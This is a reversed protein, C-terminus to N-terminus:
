GFLLRTHSFLKRATNDSIGADCLMAEVQVEDMQKELGDSVSLLTDLYMKLFASFFCDAAEDTSCKSNEAIVKNLIAILDKGHNKL